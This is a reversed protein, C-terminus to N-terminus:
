NAIKNWAIGDALSMELKIVLLHSVKKLVELQLSSRKNWLNDNNTHLLLVKCTRLNFSLFSSPENLFNPQLFSRVLCFLASQLLFTYFSHTFPFCFTPIHKWSIVKVTCIGALYVSFIELLQPGLFEVLWWLRKWLLSQPSATFQLAKKNSVIGRLLCCGQSIILLPKSFDGEWLTVLTKVSITTNLHIKKHPQLKIKYIHISVVM